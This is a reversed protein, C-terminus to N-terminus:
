LVYRGGDMKRSGDMKWTGDMLNQKTMYSATEIQYEAGACVRVHERTRITKGVETNLHLLNGAALEMNTEQVIRLTTETETNIGSGNQFRMETEASVECWSEAKIEVANEVRVDLEAKDSFRIQSETRICETSETKMQLTVPYFDLVDTGDYGRMRRSGDMKWTGDMLLYPLNYRPHFSMGFRLANDYRITVKYWSYFQLLLTVCIPLLSKIMQAMQRTSFGAEELSEPFRKLRVLCPKEDETLEFDAETIGELSTGFLMVLAKIISEYDGKANNRGIQAFLMHRYQEDTLPGRLQNLMTGYLNLTEGSAQSLDLMNRVAEIDQRLEGVASENLQLLRYNNSKPDKRYCDPLRKVNSM